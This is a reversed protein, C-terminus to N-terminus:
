FRVTPRKEPVLTVFFTRLAKVKELNDYGHVSIPCKQHLYRQVFKAYAEETWGDIDRIRAVDQALSLVHDRNRSYGKGSIHKEYIARMKHLIVIYGMMQMWPFACRINANHGEFFFAHILASLSEAISRYFLNSDTNSYERGDADFLRDLIMSMEILGTGMHPFQSTENSPFPMYTVYLYMIQTLQQSHTKERYDDHASQAIHGIQFLYLMVDDFSLELEKFLGNRLTENLFDRIEITNVYQYTTKLVEGMNPDENVFAITVDHSSNILFFVAGTILKLMHDRLTEGPVFKCFQPPITIRAKKCENQFDGPTTDFPDMPGMPVGLLSSM